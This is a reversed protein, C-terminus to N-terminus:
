PDGRGEGDGGLLRLDLPAESPPPCGAGAGCFDTRTCIKKSPVLFASMVTNRSTVWALDSASTSSSCSTSSEADTALPDAAVVVASVARPM